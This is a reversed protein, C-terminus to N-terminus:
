YGKIHQSSPRTIRELEAKSEIAQNWLEWLIHQHRNRNWKIKEMYHITMLRERIIYYHRNNRDYAM